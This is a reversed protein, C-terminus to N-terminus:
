EDSQISEKQQRFAEFAAMAVSCSLNHSRIGTGGDESAVMPLTLVRGAKLGTSFSTSHKVEEPLGSIESGFM